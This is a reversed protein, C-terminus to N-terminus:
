QAQVQALDIREIGGDGLDVRLRATVEVRETLRDAQRPGDWADTVQGSLDNDGLGAGVHSTEGTSAV